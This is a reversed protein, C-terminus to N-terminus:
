PTWKQITADGKQTTGSWFITQGDPSIQMSVVHFPVALSHLTAGSQTDRVLIKSEKGFAVQEVVAWKKAAPAVALCLQRPEGLPSVADFKRLVKIARNQWSLISVVGSSQRRAAYLGASTWQLDDIAAGTVESKESDWVPAPGADKPNRTALIQTSEFIRLSGAEDGIALWKADPSFALATVKANAPLLWRQGKAGDAFTTTDFVETSGSGSAAALRGDHSLAVTEFPWEHQGLVTELRRTRANWLQAYSGYSVGSGTLVRSGDGSFDVSAMGSVGLPAALIVGSQADYFRLANGAAVLTKGDPSLALMANYDPSPFEDRGKELSQFGAGRKLDFAYIARSTASAPASVVLTQGDGSLDFTRDNFKVEKPASPFRPSFLADGDQADLVLAGSGSPIALTKGDLSFLGRTYESTDNITALWQGSQADFLKSGYVGSGFIRSGDPSLNGTKAGGLEFGGRTTVGALKGDVRPANLDYVLMPLPPTNATIERPTARVDEPKVGAGFGAILAHKGDPAFDLPAFEMRRKEVGSQSDYIVASDVARADNRLVGSIVIENNPWFTIDRPLYLLSKNEWLKRGSAVEVLSVLVGKSAKKEDREVVVTALRSGDPSWIARVVVGGGVELRARETGSPWARLSLAGDDTGLALSKGDPSLALAGPDAGSNQAPYAFPVEFAKRAVQANAAGSLAAVVLVSLLKKM